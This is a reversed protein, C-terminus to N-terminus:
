RSAAYWCALWTRAVERIDVQSWKNKAKGMESLGLDSAIATAISVYLTSAFPQSGSPAVYYQAYILCAQILELSRQASLFVHKILLTDLESGLSEAFSPLVAPSTVALITLFLVPFKTRLENINSHPTVTPLLPLMNSHWHSFLVKATPMDLIGRDIFDLRRASSTVASARPYQSASNPPDQGVLRPYEPGPPRQLSSPRRPGSPQPPGSLRTESTWTPRSISEQGANSSHALQPFQHQRSQSQRRELIPSSPQAEGLAATLAEIKEELQSIKESSKLRPKPSRPFVCPRARKICASCSDTGNAPPLCRIKFQRCAICAPFLKTRRLPEGAPQDLAHNNPRANEREDDMGQRQYLQPRQYM